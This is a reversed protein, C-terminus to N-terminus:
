THSRICGDRQMIFVISYRLQGHLHRVHTTAINLVLERRQGDWTGKILKAAAETLQMKEAIKRAYQIYRFTSRLQKRTEACQKAFKNNVSSVNRSLRTLLNLNNISRNARGLLVTM